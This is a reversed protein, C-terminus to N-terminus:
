YEEKCCKDFRVLKHNKGNSIEKKQERQKQRRSFKQEEKLRQGDPTNFSM